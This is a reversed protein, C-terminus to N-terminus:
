SLKALLGLVITSYNLATELNLLMHEREPEVEKSSHAKQQNRLRESRLKKM